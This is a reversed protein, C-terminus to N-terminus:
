KQEAELLAERFRRQESKTFGIAEGYKRINGYTKDIHVICRELAVKNPLALHPKYALGLRAFQEKIVREMHIRAAVSSEYDELVKEKPVGLMLLLLASVLGTRDKGLSCCVLIPRHAEVNILVESFIRAIAKKGVYILSHVQM